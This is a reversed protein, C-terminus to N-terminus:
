WGRRKEGILHALGLTIATGAACTAVVRVDSPHRGLLPNKEYMQPDNLRVLTSGCDLMIAGVAAAAGWKHGSSWDLVPRQRQALAPTAACMLLALVVAKEHMRSVTRVSPVNFVM